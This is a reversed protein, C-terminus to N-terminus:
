EDDTDSLARKVREILQAPDPRGGGRYRAGAAVMFVEEDIDPHDLVHEVIDVKADPHEVLWNVIATDRDSAKLVRLLRGILDTSPKAKEGTELRHVYAHDVESLKGVERVSLARKERLKRLATGLGTNSM